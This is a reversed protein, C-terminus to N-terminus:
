AISKKGARLIPCRQPAVQAGLRTPQVSPRPKIGRREEKALAVASLGEKPEDTLGCHSLGKGMAQAKCQAKFELPPKMGLSIHPREKHYYEMYQELERTLTNLEGAKYKGWGLCEKRLSRNFSEIYSQENKRYPRAVRHRDAYELVHELFEDKFESGGDTQILSVHGCFRRRMASELFLYGDEATLSPRLLVDAEKSFIDVGTFAYVSGFDITDMQVVERAAIASPIPGRKQNKKWKSKIIYKERLIKYIAKVGLKVGKDRQLFYQIKQGCCDHYRQRIDWIYRKVADDAKRKKRPGKKANLYADLFRTLEGGMEEIGKVWRYVTVRGIGLEHAIHAQPVSASYLEWCLSIQTVKQMEM